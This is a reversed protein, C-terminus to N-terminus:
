DVHAASAYGLSSHVRGSASLQAGVQGTTAGFISDWSGNPLGVVRMEPGPTLRIGEPGLHGRCGSSVIIERPAPVVEAKGGFASTSLVHQCHRGIVQLPWKDAVCGSSPVVIDTRDLFKEAMAVCLRNLDIRM